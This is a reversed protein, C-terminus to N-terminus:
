SRPNKGRIKVQGVREPAADDAAREQVGRAVSDILQDHLAKQRCFVLAVALDGEKRAADDYKKLERQEQEDSDHQETEIVILGPITGGMGVVFDERGKDNGVQRMSDASDHHGRDQRRRHGVEAAREVGQSRRGDHIKILREQLFIGAASCCNRTERHIVTKQPNASM